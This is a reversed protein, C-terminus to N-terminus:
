KKVKVLKAPGDQILGIGRVFCKHSVDKEDLPTTERVKLVNKYKGAPTELTDTVSVIEMRDMAVKPAIENYFRAGLLPTGPMFLGFKAGDVGSLWAGEHSVVKGNKYIDVDEDFYYVCTTRKSIAFYNRSIEILEGDEEEREEVVRTEVGDVKKVEDLVAVTIKIDKKGEKGELYLTYGPELIFYPNYGKSVLEGEEIHFTDTFQKAEPKETKEGQVTGKVGDVLVKRVKGDFVNVMVISKDDKLFMQAEIPKGKVKNTAADIADKLSIKAAKVTHSHDEEEIEKDVVKGDKPDIIVNCVKEGQAVDISYVFKGKDMELEAHFVTGEGAEKLGKDIAEALSVKVDKLLKEWESDQQTLGVCSGVFLIAVIHLIKM